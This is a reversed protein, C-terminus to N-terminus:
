RADSRKRHPLQGRLHRKCWAISFSSKLSQEEFHNFKFCLSSDKKGIILMQIPSLYNPDKNNKVNSLLESILM